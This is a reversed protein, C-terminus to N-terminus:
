PKSPPARSRATLPFQPLCAPKWGTQVPLWPSRALHPSCSLWACGSLPALPEAAPRRAGHHNASIRTGFDEREPNHHERRARHDVAAMGDAVMAASSRAHDHRSWRRGGHDDDVRPVREGPHLLDDRSHPIGVHTPLQRAQPRRTGRRLAPMTRRGRRARSALATGCGECSQLGQQMATMGATSM